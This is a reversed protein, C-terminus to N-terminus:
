PTIGQVVVQGNGWRARQDQLALGSLAAESLSSAAALAQPDHKWIAIEEVLGYLYADPAAQLLWNVPTQPSLPPLAAYYTLTLTGDQFPRVKITSGTVAYGQPCGGAHRYRTMLEPLPWANLERGAADNVLRAELFDDPLAGEGGTLAVSATKEMAGVRLARNMKAEALALLRPFVHTMDNANAYEGADVLLSAYDSIASM